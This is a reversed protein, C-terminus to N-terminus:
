SNVQGPDWQSREVQDDGCQHSVHDPSQQHRRKSHQCRWRRLDVRVVDDRRLLFEAATHAACFHGHGSGVHNLPLSGSVTAFIHVFNRDSRSPRHHTVVNTYNGVHNDVGTSFDRLTNSPQPHRHSCNALPLEHDDHLRRRHCRSWRPAVVPRDRIHLPSGRASCRHGHARVHPVRVM